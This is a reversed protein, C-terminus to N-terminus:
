GGKMQREAQIHKIIKKLDKFSIMKDEIKEGCNPCYDIYHYEEIEIDFKKLLKKVDEM